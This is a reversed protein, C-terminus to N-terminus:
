TCEFIFFQMVSIVPPSTNKEKKAPLTSTIKTKMDGPFVRSIIMERQRSLGIRLANHNHSFLSHSSYYSFKKNEHHPDFCSVDCKADARRGSCSAGNNNSVLTQVVDQYYFRKHNNLPDRYFWKHNNLPDKRQEYLRFTFISWHIIALRLYHLLRVSYPKLEGSAKEFYVM